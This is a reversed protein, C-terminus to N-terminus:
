VSEQRGYQAARFIADIVRMNNLADELSVPVPGDGLIARSFAEAQLTYHNCAPFPEIEAGEGFVNSGDEIILQMPREPAQVFAFPLEM